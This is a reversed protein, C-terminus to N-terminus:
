VGGVVPASDARGSGGHRAVGSAANGFLAFGSVPTSAVDGVGVVLSPDSASSAGGCDGGRRLRVGSMRDRRNELFDEVKWIRTETYPMRRPPLFAISDVARRALWATLLPHYRAEEEGGIHASCLLPVGCHVSHEVARWEEEDGLEDVVILDPSLSRVAQLIGVAKPCGRLVDCRSLERASLEAREDVVAVRYRRSLQVAADCLLTTKGVAPAGCVLMGYLHGDAAELFPLLPSAAHAVTRPLRICLSTIHRYTYIHGDRMVATGAVGVRIGERTTIFGQRLEHEHTHVAQSCCRVFCDEVARTDTVVPLIREGDPLSLRVPENARLRLEQASQRWVPSVRELADCVAPPLYAQLSTWVDM